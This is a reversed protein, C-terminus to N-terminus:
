KLLIMKKTVVNTGANLRYFYVGSSVPNGRSDTGNWMVTKVGADFEANVLTKVLRGEINYITLTAHVKGPVSFTINTTPNFPNPYNQYLFFRKGNVIGLGSVDDGDGTCYVKDCGSGTEVWCEFSGNAEPKFRVTVHLTEGAALGYSGEGSVVDYYGCTDSVSGALIGGGANIIDFNMDLSDSVIVIGYDLSDPEVVCLPPSESTGSCYVDSCLASGTEITCEHLGISGPKYRVTVTLTEDAALAYAGAGSVISYNDCTESVDGTLVDGGSNAITFAMDLSDGLTVVVFDLTDPDIICLAPDMGNGTCFVDGCLGSGTEISCTHNGSVTPEFRVTVVLSEGAALAYAGGGATISYHNCTESVTGSLTDGGTNSISFNLEGNNGVLVTGFDLTDPDVLCEPGASGGFGMCYLDTCADNGTEITCEHPGAVGPFFIITVTQSQDHTLAYTGGSVIGFYPCASSMTGELSGYGTNTIDFTMMKFDSVDVNGFDLTDPDILCAPPPEYSIGQCGVNACETGTNVTCYWTGLMTPKYRVTVVLSEGPALSYGGVGAAIEYHLCSETVSGSLTSCGINYITLDLDASDGMAIAGFNLQKPSVDCISIGEGTCHVDSCSSDGTEITCDHTGTAAPEYRVTVLFSEGPPLSYPGGGSLISYHDCSESVEGSLPGTTENFITFITDVHCGVPIDGFNLSAPMVHCPPIINRYIREQNLACGGWPCYLNDVTYWATHGDAWGYNMHYQNLSGNIRWGDCVICHSYIRYMMPYGNDIQEQVVAFWSSSSHQSRYQADVIDRYGFYDAFVFTSWSTFAGSGCVGFNMEFAVAVEFCLEGVAAEEAPSCGTGCNDVMNNWDYSDSYVAGVNEGPTSGGCSNDGPWWYSHSGIGAPPYKHYNIIQAAATAVCGVLTRGGDGMPCRSKYPAGQHWSSSLLPGASQAELAAGATLKAQISKKDLTFTNWESRHATGFLSEDSAPQRAEMGGYMDIFLTVRHELMERLYLAFGGEDNVNLNSETSYAKIPPLEKLVPVVVYGQPSISYCKALVLGNDGMIEQVDIIQPNLDGAWDGNEHVIVSLWNSCVEDMEKPTAVEAFSDGNASVLLLLISAVAITFRRV